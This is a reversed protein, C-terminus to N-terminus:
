GQRANFKEKLWKFDNILKLNAGDSLGFEMGDRAGALAFEGYPRDGGVTTWIKLRENTEEENQRDIVKSSLKVCERFASKWTNFPDTNFVTMNSVQEMAKFHKSISTTMDTTNTNMQLTLATPFLKVGGYGYQLDNIPNKSRWVHVHKREYFPVYYDFNFDKEIQADADVIWFMETEVIKAAEIHAQHIGKVGHIRKARPFNKCLETYNEDANTENYSIFVIDFVQQRPTSAKKDIEKKNVYFRSHFERNSVSMKKPFLCVGDYENNNKFVHIYMNDWKTTRYELLNFDSCVKLDDWVVWFNSTFSKSKITDFSECNDIKQANPYQHKFENWADEDVKNKSIFFIDYM